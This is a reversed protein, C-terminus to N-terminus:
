IIAENSVFRFRNDIPHHAPQCIQQRTTNITDKKILYNSGCTSYIRAGTGETNWVNTSQAHLPKSERHDGYYQGSHERSYPQGVGTVTMNGSSIQMHPHRYGEVVNDYKDVFSQATATQLTHEANHSAASAVSSNLAQAKLKMYNSHIVAHAKSKNRYQEALDQHKVELAKYAAQANAVKERLVTIEANADHIIKDMHSSLSAYKDTLSKALYEQYV